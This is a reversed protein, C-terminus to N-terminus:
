ALPKSGTVFPSVRGDGQRLVRSKQLMLEVLGARPSLRQLVVPTDPSKGSMNQITSGRDITAGGARGRWDWGLDRAEVPQCSPTVAVAPNTLQKM